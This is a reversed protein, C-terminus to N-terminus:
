KDTTAEAQRAYTTSHLTHRLLANSCIEMEAQLIIGLRLIPSSLVSIKHSCRCGSPHPWINQDTKMPLVAEGTLTHMIKSLIKKGAQPKQLEM